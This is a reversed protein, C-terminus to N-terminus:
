LRHLLVRGVAAGAVKGRVAVKRGLEPVSLVFADRRKKERRVLQPSAIGGEFAELREVDVQEGRSGAFRLRYQGARDLHPTLDVDFTVGSWEAVVDDGTLEAGQDWTAPPAVGTDHAAFRRILPTGRSRKVDLRLAEAVVPGVPHIRKQGIASGEGVVRWEGGVRAELRYERVREGETIEEQLVLHDVRTPTGLELTLKRGHGAAVAVPAGFRARLADGFERARAADAAPIRGSRDPPFNLLLHAGHGVSRYYIEMLQDLTLLNKEDTSNWFWDPRRVSVDVEVPMWADGDPDSQLATANGTRADERPLANWCPYPAFGDENGVWRITAQPGQFVMADPQHTAVIDATPVVSSGDLWLEVIPGYRSLLETLQTRYIANYADQAEPTACRGSLGAGHRDDRPSLYVGLGLGRAKCAAALDAMVDGRGNKWPSNRISYDTTGTQWLCFGGVHKAVLVVYRAGLSRAVDAWQSADIDTMVQAPSLSLDDYEKDQWTNPALHVFMGFELDQWAAQAPTPVALPSHRTTLPSRRTALSVAPISALAALFTRRDVEGGSVREANTALGPLDRIPNAAGRV